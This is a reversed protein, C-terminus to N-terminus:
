RKPRAPLGEKQIHTVADALLRILETVDYANMYWGEPEGRGPAPEISIYIHDHAAAAVPPPKVVFFARFRAGNKFRTESIKKRKPKAM